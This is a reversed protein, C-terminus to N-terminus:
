FIVEVSIYLRAFDVLYIFMRKCANIFSPGLLSSLQVSDSSLKETLRM